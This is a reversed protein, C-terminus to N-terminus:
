HSQYIPNYVWPTPTLEPIHELVYNINGVDKAVVKFKTNRPLLLESIETIDTIDIIPTSQPLFIQFLCCTKKYTFIRAIDYLLSVSSFGDFTVIDGINSIIKSDIGRFVILDETTRTKKIRTDLEILNRKIEYDMYEFQGTRLIQNIEGYNDLYYHLGEEAFHNFNEKTVKLSDISAFRNAIQMKSMSNIRWGFQKSIELPDISFTRLEFPNSTGTISMINHKPIRSYLLHEIIIKFYEFPYHYISSLIRSVTNTFECFNCLKQVMDDLFFLMYIPDIQPIIRQLNFIMENERLNSLDDTLDSIIELDSIIM